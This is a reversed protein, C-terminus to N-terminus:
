KVTVTMKDSATAGQNDTVTLTFTVVTGIRARANVKISPSATAAGSTIRVASNSSTWAYGAISGDPDSSAAASLIATAGRSLKLDAGANAVPAQNVPPPNSVANLAANLNLRGGTVTKGSLASVPDTSDLILEKVQAASLTSDAALLLSAAGAVHPSAMSTGSFSAYGNGPICSLISNGPAGLDVGVSGYNSFSARGDSATTAAVSIINSHTLSAPYSSSTDINKGDNGAAVVMVVDATQAATFADSLSKSYAGGGWSHNMVRAGMDVAYYIAEVADSTYGGGQADLFKLPMIKALRNVGVVGSANDGIAAITGSVHTGHENDDFPDNDNNAFDWGRTDDIYGNGDDDIGNGAIEGPNSWINTALDAHNYDVGTDVVAVLVEGGALTDWAEPADIDADATGGTQGTNDMGWLESFKTDNPVGVLNVRYDPEVWEVGPLKAIRDMMRALNAEGAVHMVRWRKALTTRTQGARLKRVEHVGLAGAQDASSDADTESAFKVLLRGPRYAPADPKVSDMAGASGAGFLALSIALALTQQKFHTKM